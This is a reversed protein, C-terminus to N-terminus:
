RGLLALLQQHEVADAIPERRRHELAQRVVLAPAHLLQLWGSAQAHQLRAVQRGQQAAAELLVVSPDPRDEVDLVPVVERQRVPVVQQADGPRGVVHAEGVPTWVALRAV